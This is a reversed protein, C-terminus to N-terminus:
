IHCNEFFTKIYYYINYKYLQSNYHMDKNRTNLAEDCATIEEAILKVLKTFAEYFGDNYM